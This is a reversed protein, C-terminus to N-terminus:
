KWFLFKRKGSMGGLYADDYYQRPQYANYHGTGSNGEKYCSTYLFDNEFSNLVIAMNSLGFERSLADPILAASFKSVKSRIVFL